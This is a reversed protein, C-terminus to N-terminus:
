YKEDSKFKTDLEWENNDNVIWKKVPMNNEYLFKGSINNNFPNRMVIESGDEIEAPVLEGDMIMKPVGTIANYTVTGDPINFPSMFKGTYFAYSMKLDDSLLNYSLDDYDILNENILVAGNNIRVHINEGGYIQIPLRDVWELIKTKQDGSFGLDELEKPLNRIIVNSMM